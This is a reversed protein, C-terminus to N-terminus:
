RTVKDGQRGVESQPTLGYKAAVMEAIISIAVEEPSRAGIELGIPAHIRALQQDSIGEAKLRAIRRAHTKRSGLAGIYRAPSELALKIAPDDLKEDHTLVVVHTSSDIRPGALAEEPWAIVLEDAHAFREPTAFVSRADVVTTRFGLEKAFKVLPIAIHVAGFIVLKPSAPYVDIFIEAPETRGDVPYSRTQSTETRLLSLADRIVQEDLHPNGLSGQHGGEGFVLLKRGTGEAARIITAVAAPRDEVICQKLTEYPGLPEVFVDIMGGCALGVGWAEEDPIGFHLLKPRQKKIVKLAEEFVAGEVCGGSVSGAMKGSGSVLMKAGELRPASGIVRVVTAVAITEGERQWEEIIPLVDKM